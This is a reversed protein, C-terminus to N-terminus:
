RRCGIGCVVGQLTSLPSDPLPCGIRRLSDVILNFKSHWNKIVQSSRLPRRDWVSCQELKNLPKGLMSRCLYSLGQEGFKYNSSKAMPPSHEDKFLKILLNTIKWYNVKMLDLNMKLDDMKKRFERRRKREITGM